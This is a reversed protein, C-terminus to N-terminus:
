NAKQIEVDNHNIGNRAIDNETHKGQIRDCERRLTAVTFVQWFSVASFLPINLFKM